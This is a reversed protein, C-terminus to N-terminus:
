YSDNSNRQIFIKFAEVCESAPINVCIEEGSAGSKEVSFSVIGNSHKIYSQGESRSFVIKCDTNEEISSFLKKWESIKPPFDINIHVGNGLEISFAFYSGEAEVKLSM